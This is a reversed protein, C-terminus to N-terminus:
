MKGTNEPKIAIKRQKKEMKEAEDANRGTNWNEKHHVLGAWTGPETLTSNECHQYLLSVKAM